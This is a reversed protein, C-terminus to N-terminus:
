NKIIGKVANMNAFINFSGSSNANPNISVHETGPAIAEFTM